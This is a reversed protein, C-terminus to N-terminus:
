PLCFWGAAVLLLLIRLREPQQEVFCNPGIRGTGKPEQQCGSGATIPGRQLATPKSSRQAGFYWGDPSYSLINNGPPFSDHDVQDKQSCLLLLLGTIGLSSVFHPLPEVWSRKRISGRWDAKSLCFKISSVDRGVECCAWSGLSKNTSTFVKLLKHIPKSM